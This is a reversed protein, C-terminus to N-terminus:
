GVPIRWRMNVICQLPSCTAEEQMIGPPTCNVSGSGIHPVIIWGIAPLGAGMAANSHRQFSGGPQIVPSRDSCQYLNIRLMDRERLLTGALLVRSRSRSLDCGNNNRQRLESSLLTSQASRVAGTPYKLKTGAM